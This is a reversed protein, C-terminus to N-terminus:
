HEEAGAERHVSAKAYDESTVMDLFAARSPYM